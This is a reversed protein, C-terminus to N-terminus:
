KTNTQKARCSKPLYITSNDNVKIDPIVLHRLQNTQDISVCNAPRMNCLGGEIYV